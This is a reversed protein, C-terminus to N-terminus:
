HLNHPFSLLPPPSALYSCNSPAERVALVGAEVVGDEVTADVDGEASAEAEAEVLAGASEDVDGVGGEEEEDLPSEVGALAPM